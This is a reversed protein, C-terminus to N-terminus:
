KALCAPWGIGDQFPNATNKEEKEERMGGNQARDMSKSWPAYNSGGVEPRLVAAFTEQRDSGLKPERPRVNQLLGFSRRNETCWGAWLEVGRLGQAVIMPMHIAPSMRCSSACFAPLNCHHIHLASKEIAIDSGTYRSSRYLRGTLSGGRQGQCGEFDTGSISAPARYLNLTRYEYNRVAKARPGM